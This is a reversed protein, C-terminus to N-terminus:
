FIFNIHYKILTYYKDKLIINQILYVKVTKETNLNSTM